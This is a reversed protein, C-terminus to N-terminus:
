GTRNSTKAGVTVAADIEGQTGAAVVGEVGDLGAHQILEQKFGAPVCMIVKPFAGMGDKEDPGPDTEYGAQPSLLRRLLAQLDRAPLGEFTSALVIEEFGHKRSANAIDLLTTNLKMQFRTNDSPDESPKAPASVFMVHISFPSIAEGVSGKSVRVDKACLEDLGTSAMDLKELLVAAFDTHSLLGSVSSSREM